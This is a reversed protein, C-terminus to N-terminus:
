RKKKKKKLKVPFIVCMKERGDKENSANPQRGNPNTWQFRAHALEKGGEM